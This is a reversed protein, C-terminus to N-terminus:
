PRKGEQSPANGRAAKPERMVALVRQVLDPDQYVSRPKLLHQVEATLRHVAPDHAALMGLAGGFKLTQEFDPPREGRTEPHVFDPIAAAAWPTDVIRAVEVFYEPALEALPDRERARRAMLRGLAVAEMSAVSMGQGYIPNFRCIADGIPLVGRPFNELHEYHRLVSENFRFRAIDGLRKADTIADYITPTRLAKAYDM